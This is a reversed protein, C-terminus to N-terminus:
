PTLQKRYEYSIWLYYDPGDQCGYVKWVLTCTATDCGNFTVPISINQNFVLGGCSGMPCDLSGTVVRTFTGSPFSCPFADFEYIGNLYSATGTPQGGSYLDVKDLHATLTFVQGRTLTAPPATWTVANTFTRGDLTASCSLGTDGNRPMGSPWGTGGPDFHGDYTQVQYLTWTEAPPPPTACASCWDGEAECATAAAAETAYCADTAFCYFPQSEPCCAYTCDLPTSGGCGGTAEEVACKGPLQAPPTCNVLAALGDRASGSGSGNPTPGCLDSPECGVCTTPCTTMAKAETDYCTQGCAFPKEVPCCRSECNMPEDPNDCVRSTSARRCSDPMCTHCQSSEGCIAQAQYANSSCRNNDTGLQCRYPYDKPCCAGHVGCSLDSGSCGSTARPLPTAVACTGGSSACIRCLSLSLTRAFALAEPETAFCRGGEAHKVFFPQGNPCCDANDDGCTLMTGCHLIHWTARCEVDTTEPADCKFCPDTGCAASAAGASPYCRGARPCYYDGPVATPCAAQCGSWSVLSSCTSPDSSGSSGSSGCSGIVVAAPLALVGAALVALFRSAGLRRRGM